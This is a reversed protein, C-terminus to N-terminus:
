EHSVAGTGSRRLIQVCAKGLAQGRRLQDGKAQRQPWGQLGNGMIGLTDDLM